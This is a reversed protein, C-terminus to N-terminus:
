DTDFGQDNCFKNDFVLSYYHIDDSEADIHHIDNTNFIVIDQKQWICKIM